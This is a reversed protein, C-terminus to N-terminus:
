LMHRSERWKLPWKMSEYHGLNRFEWVSFLQNGKMGHELKTGWGGIQGSFLRDLVSLSDPTDDKSNHQRRKIGNSISDLWEQVQLTRTGTNQRLRYEVTARLITDVDNQTEDDLEGSVELKFDQRWFEFNEDLIKLQRDSLPGEFKRGTVDMVWSQKGFEATPQPNEKDGTCYRSDIIVEEMSEGGNKYCALNNMITWLDAPFKHHVLNFVTVWDNRPMIAMLGKAGVESNWGKLAQASKAVALAVSLFGLVDDTVWWDPKEGIPALGRFYKTQFWDRTVFLHHMKLSYYPTVLPAINVKTSLKM